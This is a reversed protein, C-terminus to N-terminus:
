GVEERRGPSTSGEVRSIFRLLEEVSDFRAHRGSVMHEVRGAFPGAPVDADRRLQVVYARAPPLEAPADRRAKRM